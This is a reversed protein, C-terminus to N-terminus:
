NLPPLSMETVTGSRRRVVMKDIKEGTANSGRLAIEPFPWVHTVHLSFYTLGYFLQRYRHFQSPFCGDLLNNGEICHTEHIPHHASKQVSNEGSRFFDIFDIILM